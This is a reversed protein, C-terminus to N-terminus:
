RYMCSITYENRQRQNGLPKKAKEIVERVLTKQLEAANKIEFKKL